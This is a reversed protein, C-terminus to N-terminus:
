RVRVTGPDEMGGGWIVKVVSDPMNRYMNFMDESVLDGLCPKGQACNANNEANGV